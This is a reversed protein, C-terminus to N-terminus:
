GNNKGEKIGFTGIMIGCSPSDIASAVTTRSV